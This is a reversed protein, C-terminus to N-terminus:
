TACYPTVDPLMIADKADLSLQWLLGSAAQALQGRLFTHRHRFQQPAARVEHEPLARVVRGLLAPASRTGNDPPERIRGFDRGHM